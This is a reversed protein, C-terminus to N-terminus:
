TGIVKLNLITAPYVTSSGSQEVGYFRYGIHNSALVTNIVTRESRYGTTHTFSFSGIDIPTNPTERVYQCQMLWTSATSKFMQWDIHTAYLEYGVLYLPRPLIAHLESSNWSLGGTPFKAEIQYTQESLWRTGDYAFGLRLDSRWVRMGTQPSTPMATVSPTNSYALSNWITTGDGVKYAKDDTSFGIEGSNLTPNNSVWDARTDRAQHLQRDVM